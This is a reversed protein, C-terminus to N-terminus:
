NLEETEEEEKKVAKVIAIVQIAVLAAMAITWIDVFRMNGPITQTVFFLVLAVVASLLCIIKFKSLGNAKEEEVKKKFYLKIPVIFSALM